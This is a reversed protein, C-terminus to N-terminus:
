SKSSVKLVILSESIKDDETKMLVYHKRERHEDFSFVQNKKKKSLVLDFRKSFTGEKVWGLDGGTPASPHSSYVRALNHFKHDGNRIGKLIFARLSNIESLTTKKSDFEMMSLRYTREKKTSIVKYVTKVGDVDDVKLKGKPLALLENALASNTDNINLYLIEANSDEKQSKVFKEAQQLTRIGILSREIKKQSFGLFPIILLLHIFYKM